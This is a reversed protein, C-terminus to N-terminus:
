TVHHGRRRHRHGDVDSTERRRGQCKTTLALHNRVLTRRLAHCQGAADDTTEEVIENIIASGMLTAEVTAVEETRDPAVFRAPADIDTAHRRVADERGENVEHVHDHTIRALPVLDLLRTLLNHVQVNIDRCM